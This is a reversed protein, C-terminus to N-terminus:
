WLNHEDTFTFDPEGAFIRSDPPSSSFAINLVRRHYSWGSGYGFRGNLSFRGWTEPALTFINRIIPPRKPAGVAWVDYFYEVTLRGDRFRLTVPADKFDARSDLDHEELKQLPQFDDQEFAEVVHLAVFRGKSPRDQSSLLDFHDPVSARKTSNPAGRSAKSWRTQITQLTAIM